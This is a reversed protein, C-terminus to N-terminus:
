SQSLGSGIRAKKHFAQPKRVFMGLLVWGYFSQVLAIVLYGLPTVTPPFGGWRILVWMGALTCATAALAGYGGALLWARGSVRGATGIAGAVFFLLGVVWMLALWIHATGEIVGVNIAGSNEGGGMSGSMAMSMLAVFELHLIHKFVRYAAYCWVPSLVVSLLGIIRVRRPRSSSASDTLKTGM